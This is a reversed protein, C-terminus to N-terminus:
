LRKPGISQKHARSKSRDTTFGTQEGSNFWLYFSVTRQIKRTTTSLGPHALKKQNSTMSKKQWIWRFAYRLNIAKKDAREALHRGSSETERPLRVKTRVWTIKKWPKPMLMILDITDWDFEMNRWGNPWTSDGQIVMDQGKSSKPLFDKSLKKV